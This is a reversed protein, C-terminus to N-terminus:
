GKRNPSFSVPPLVRPLGTAPSMGGRLSHRTWFALRASQRAFLDPEQYTGIRFAHECIESRKLPCHKPGLDTHISMGTALLRHSSPIPTPPWLSHSSTGYTEIEEESLCRALRFTTKIYSWNGLQMMIPDAYSSRSESLDRVEWKSQSSGDRVQDRRTLIRITKGDEEANSHRHIPLRLSPQDLHLHIDPKFPSVWLNDVAFPPDTTTNNALLLYGEICGRRQDYRILNLSGLYTSDGFWIKYRPLFWHPDHARYLERFTSCPYSSTIIQGPVNAQVHARWLRDDIAHTYLIRCTASVHALDVPSLNCLINAILEAPLQTFRCQTRHQAGSDVDLDGHQAQAPTAGPQAPMQEKAKGKSASDAPSFGDEAEDLYTVQDM